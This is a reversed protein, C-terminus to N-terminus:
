PAATRTGLWQSAMTFSTGNSKIIIHGDRGNVRTPIHEAMKRSRQCYPSLWIALPAPVVLAKPAVAAFFTDDPIEDAGFHPMKLVDAKLPTNDQQSLLYNGTKRTASGAFLFRNQKHTLMLIASADDPATAVFDPKDENYLCLVRLSIGNQFSWQANKTLAVLPVGKQRLVNKINELEGMDANGPDLEVLRPPMFNMYVADIAIDNELM